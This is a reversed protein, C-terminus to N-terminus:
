IAVALGGLIMDEWAVCDAMDVAKPSLKM